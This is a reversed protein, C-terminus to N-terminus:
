WLSYNSSITKLLSDIYCSVARVCEFGYAGHEKSDNELSFHVQNIMPSTGYQIDDYQINLNKEVDKKDKVEITTYTVIFKEAKFDSFDDTYYSFFYSKYPRKDEDNLNLTSAVLFSKEEKTEDYTVNLRFDHSKLKGKYIFSYDKDKLMHSAYSVFYNKINTKKDEELKNQNQEFSFSTDDYVDEYQIINGEKVEPLSSCSSLLFLLFICPKIKKM